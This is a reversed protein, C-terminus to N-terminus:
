EGLLAFAWVAVMTAHYRFYPNEGPRDIGWSGDENQLALLADIWSDVPAGTDGTMILMLLREAFLDVDLTESPQFEVPEHDRLERQLDPALRLYEGDALCGNRAALYLAWLAHATQYGGSDRMPGAVYRSTEPRWGREACYLAEGVVRNTNVRQESSTPVIWFSTEELPPDTSADWFRRLPNDTDRDAIERATRWATDIPESYYRQRIHWLGVAADFRLKEPPFSALWRGARLLAM